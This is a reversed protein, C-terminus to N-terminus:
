GATILVQHVLITVSHGLNDAHKYSTHATNECDLHSQKLPTLGIGPFTVPQNFVPQNIDSM